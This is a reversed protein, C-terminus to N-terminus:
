AHPVENGCPTDRSSEATVGVVRSPHSVRHRRVRLPVQHSLMVDKSVNRPNAEVEAERLRQMVEAELDSTRM